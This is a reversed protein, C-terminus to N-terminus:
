YCIYTVMPMNKLRKFFCALIWGHLMADGMVVCFYTVYQKVIPVLSNTNNVKIRYHGSIKYTIEPSIIRM